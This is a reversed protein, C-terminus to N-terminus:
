VLTIYAKINDLIVECLLCEQLFSNIIKVPLSENYYIYVGGRKNNSPQDTWILKYGNMEYKHITNCAELLSLKQM